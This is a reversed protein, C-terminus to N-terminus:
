SPIASLRLFSCRCGSFLLWNAALFTNEEEFVVGNNSFDADRTGDWPCGGDVALDGFTAVYWTVDNIDVDDDNDTDGGLLSLVGDVVLQDGVALVPKLDSLTHQEDKACIELWDGCGVKFKAIARVSTSPEYTTGETSDKIGNENADDGDHDVFSLEENVEKDCGGIDKLIFRICRLTSENVGVLEVEVDLSSLNVVTVQHSCLAFNGANDTATWNITTKGVPYPDTLPLGDKREGNIKAM